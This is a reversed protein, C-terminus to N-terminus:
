MPYAIPAEAVANGSRPALRLRCCPRFMYAARPWSSRLSDERLRAEVRALDNYNTLDAPLIDILVGTQAHLRAALNEMRQEDRAVLVLDHGRRALRDAYPAGIGSSAGTILAAPRSLVPM